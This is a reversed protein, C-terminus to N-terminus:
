IRSIEEQENLCFKELILHYSQLVNEHIFLLFIVKFIGVYNVQNEVLSTTTYKETVLSKPAGQFDPVKWAEEM